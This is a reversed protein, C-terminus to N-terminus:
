RSLLIDIAQTIAPLFEEHALGPPQHSVAWTVVTDQLAARSMAARASASAADKEAEASFSELQRATHEADALPKTKRHKLVVYGVAVLAASTATLAVAQLASSWPDGGSTVQLYDFRLIFMATFAATLTAQLIRLPVPRGKAAFLDLLWMAGGLATCLLVTLVVTSNQDLGFAEATWYAPL